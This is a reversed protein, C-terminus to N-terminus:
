PVNPFILSGGGQVVRYDCMLQATWYFLSNQKLCVERITNKETISVPLGFVLQSVPGYIVFGIFIQNKLM